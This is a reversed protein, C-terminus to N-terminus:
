KSFMKIEPNESSIRKFVCTRYICSKHDQEISSMPMRTIFQKKGVSSKEEEEGGQGRGRIILTGM